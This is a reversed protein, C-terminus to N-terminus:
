EVPRWVPKGDRGPVRRMQPPLVYLEDLALEEPLDEVRDAVDEYQPPLRFGASCERDLYLFEDRLSMAKLLASPAGAILERLRMGAAVYGFLRGRYGPLAALNVVAFDRNDVILLVAEDIRVCTYRTDLAPRQLVRHRGELAIVRELAREGLAFGGLGRGPVIDADLDIM